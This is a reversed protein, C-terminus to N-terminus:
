DHGGKTRVLRKELWFQVLRIEFTSKQFSSAHHNDLPFFRLERNEFFPKAGYNPAMDLDKFYKFFYFLYCSFHWTRSTADYVESTDSM